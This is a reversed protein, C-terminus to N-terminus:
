GEVEEQTWSKDPKLVVVRSFLGSELLPRYIPRTKLDEPSAAHATAVLKVGCWGAQLLARCDEEGTIEDVAIWKSGMTRLVAEIGQGKPCGSLVDTNEGPSFGPAFLELREDVVSIPTGTESIRFIIDRLLTTKGWGPAGIILLSGSLPIGASIGTIQRAVRINLSRIERLGTMVGNKIVGDGCLGIRHGGPATLYGMAMSQANWPSYRSAQNVVWLIDEQVVTRGLRHSRNEIVVGPPYGLRMHIEQVPVDRLKDVDERLHHPLIDLLKQWQCKM